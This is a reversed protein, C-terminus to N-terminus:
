VPSLLGSLSLISVSLPDTLSRLTKFDEQTLEDRRFLFRLSEVFTMNKIRFQSYLYHLVQDDKLITNLLDKPYEYSENDAKFLAVILMYEIFEKNISTSSTSNSSSSSSSSLLVDSEERLLQLFPTEGRANRVSLEQPNHLAIPLFVDFNGENGLNLLRDTHMSWGRESVLQELEGSEGSFMFMGNRSLNLWYTGYKAFSTIFISNDTIKHRKKDERYYGIEHRWSKASAPFAVTDIYRDPHQFQSVYPACFITGVFSNSSLKIIQSLWFPSGETESGHHPAILFNVMRLLNRNRLSVARINRDPSKTDGLILDLTNGTADGTFLVTGSGKNISVVLSNSNNDAATRVIPIPSLISVNAGMILSLNREIEDNDYGSNCGPDEIRHLVWRVWTDRASDYKKRDLIKSQTGLTKKFTSDPSFERIYFFCDACQKTAIATCYDFDKGYGGFFFSVENLQNKNKEVAFAFLGGLWDYHDSDPHTVLVASIKAGSFIENLIDNNKVLFEDWSSPSKGEDFAGRGSFGPAQTGVDLVMIQNCCRLLIFNGQGANFPFINLSGDSWQTKGKELLLNATPIAATHSFKAVDKGILSLYDEESDSDM